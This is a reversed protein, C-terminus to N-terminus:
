PAPKTTKPPTAYHNKVATKAQQSAILFHRTSDSTLWYYILNIAERQLEQQFLTTSNITFIQNTNVTIDRSASILRPPVVIKGHADTIAVTVQLTFVYTIAINTASVSPNNHQFSYNSVQLTYPALLPNNVQRIRMSELLNQLQLYLHSEVTSADLYLVKLQPPIENPNRLQWHCASLPLLLFLSFIIIQLNFRM